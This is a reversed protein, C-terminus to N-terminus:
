ETIGLLQKRALTNEDMLQIFQALTKGKSPMVKILRRTGVSFAVEALAESSIEGWGKCRIVVDKPCGKPLQKVVEEHTDGFYFSNRYSAYFLPANVVFVNGEDLLKPLLKYILTMVLTNIHAGDVDADAMLMIRKVRLKGYPDEGKRAADFDFGISSLLDKVAESALVTGLTARVANAIKGDLRLVEQFDKSRAYKASGAASAGEVLYLEREEPKARPCAMLNDPLKGKVKKKADSLQKLGKAHEEKAKKVDSARKLIARALAANKKFFATLPPLLADEIPKSVKSSLREKTQNSYAAQSMRYNIFGVFGFFLDSPSLKQTSKKYVDLAKSLANRLGTAHEGHQVTVASNVYSYLGDDAPYNGWNFAVTIQKDEFVFPKGMFDDVALKTNLASLIEAPGGKNAFRKTKGNCCLALELGPNMMAQDELWSSMRALDLKAIGKEDKNVISQDLTFRIITGRSKDYEILDTVSKPPNKQEVATVPKGAAFKQYHWKKDRCTWVEFSSSVANTASVGIGHVGQSFEYAKDNFKGGTHVETLILTLMSAKKGKPNDPDVPIVGVPIGEAKDAVIFTANKNDVHVFGSKNRGAFFEDIVNAIPEKVAQFTMESGYEGLYMTPRSRIGELGQKREISSENYKAM